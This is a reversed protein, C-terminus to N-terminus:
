RPGSTAPTSSSRASCPRRPRTPAAAPPSRSAWTGTPGRTRSAGERGRGALLDGRRPLHPEPVGHGRRARPGGGGRGGPPCGGAVAWPRSGSGSSGRPASSRCTSSGSTRRTPARCGGARRPCGSSSGSSGSPWPRAAGSARWRWASRWRRPPAVAGAVRGGVGDGRAPGSGRGAPRHPGGARRAVGRCRRPHAPEGVPGPLRASRPADPRLGPLRRLPPPGSRSSRSTRRSPASPRGGASRVRVDVAMLLLLAAIPLVM